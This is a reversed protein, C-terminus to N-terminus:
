AGCVKQVWNDERKLYGHTWHCQPLAKVDKGPGVFCSPPGDKLTAVREVGEVMLRHANRKRLGQTSCKSLQPDQHSLM